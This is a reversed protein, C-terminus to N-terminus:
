FVKYSVKGDAANFSGFNNLVTFYEMDILIGTAKSNKTCCDSCNDDLCTDAITANFKYTKGNYDKTIQINKKAWRSDFYKGKPDSADYFSVLNNTKVYNLSKHGDYNTDTM